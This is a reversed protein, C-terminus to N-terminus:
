ASNTYEAIPRGVLPLVAALSLAAGEWAIAGGMAIRRWILAIAPALLLLDYDLVFPTTLPTAVLMAAAKIETDAPGRWIWAILVAAGVAALAQALYAPGLAGGALRVAAFVSQMKFYPVWGSDLMQHAFGTSTLFELWVDAGFFFITLLSLGLMTLCAVAIAQWHRGAVLAVPLLLALQPKFSLAAFLIGSVTPR